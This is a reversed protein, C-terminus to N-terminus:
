CTFSIIILKDFLVVANELLPSWDHHLVFILYYNSLEIDKICISVVCLFM